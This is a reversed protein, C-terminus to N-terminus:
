WSRHSDSLLKLRCCLHYMLAPRITQDRIGYILSSLCRPVIFICVYLVNQIRVFVIRPLTRSVTLIPIYVTSSLSLGLQVLHLLLTNRAKRASAKDASASRAAVMVGVYSSTITVTVSVFLFCTYAKDYQDSMSGLTMAVNYCYDKMLLTDLEAFPFDLLLLVRTLVNLLSSFWVLAIAVSTNRITVIAAHRLPYCVAVYRELSMVVLTLPSIENTLIALMNLVGCMPYTLRTRCAAIIYLLQSLTMQLTDALLLNFLLVYRCTDRFVAKSRLTFLMTVNIFLFVCCPATTLTSFLLRELLGQYQEAATSNLVSQSANLM